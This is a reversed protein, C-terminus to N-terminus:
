VVNRPDAQSKSYVTEVAFRWCIRQTALLDVAFGQLTNRGKANPSASYYLNVKKTLFESHGCAHCWQDAILINTQQAVYV